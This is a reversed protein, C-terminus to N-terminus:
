ISVGPWDLWTNAMTVLFRRQRSFSGIHRLIGLTRECDEGSIGMEWGIGESEKKGIGVSGEKWLGRGQEERV